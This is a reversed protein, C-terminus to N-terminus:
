APVPVAEAGAASHVAEAAGRGAKCYICVQLGSDYMVSQKGAPHPM